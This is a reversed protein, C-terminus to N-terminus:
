RITPGQPRCVYQVPFRFREDSEVTRPRLGIRPHRDPYTRDYWNSASAAISWCTATLPRCRFSASVDQIGLQARLTSTSPASASSSRQDYGVLDMKNVAVVLHPIGLLHALYSHRRTQTLVGKRADILIIALNATSAATVMNRTYQEHGPADAIIYKRRGTSFYRYAVDITIGQEREAQLGDTLLSLDVAELGRKQLDKRDRAAHRCSDGQHRVAPPRDAHEQRRRRQRLHPLAALRQRRRSGFEPIHEMASMLFVRGEQTTGDRSGLGPRGPADRRARYDTTTATEAIIKHVTDADSEVPATCTIDGVTRFRVRLQEVVDGDRAPTLETV